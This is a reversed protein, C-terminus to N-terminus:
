NIRYPQIFKTLNIRHSISKILSAFNFIKLAVTNQANHFVLVHFDFFNKHNFKRCFNGAIELPLLIILLLLLDVFM